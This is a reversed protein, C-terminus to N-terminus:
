VENIGNAVLWTDIEAKSGPGIKTSIVKGESFLLLAPISEIGFEESLDSQEDVNAKGVLLNGEYSTSIKEILPLVRRCSPCWEAWFDVLVPIKSELVLSKFNEATIITAAM